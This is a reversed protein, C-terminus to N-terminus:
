IETRQLIMSRDGNTFLFKDGFKNISYDGLVKTLWFVESMAAEDVSISDDINELIQQSNDDTILRLTIKQDFPKYITIIGNDLSLDDMLTKNFFKKMEDVKNKNIRAEYLSPSLPINKSLNEKSVELVDKTKHYKFKWSDLGTLKKLGYIIDEIQEVIKPTRNLEVFVHYDGKNNEGSSVDADLVFNFGKEIFEMMDRAPQRDKVYFSIVCIDPDEGMKSKFSDVEFIPLVLNELDKPRLGETIVKDNM